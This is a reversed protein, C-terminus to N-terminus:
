DFLSAQRPTKPKEQAISTLLAGCNIGGWRDALPASGIRGHLAGDRCAGGWYYVPKSQSLAQEATFMSGGKERPEIVCLLQSLAAITRNRTMARHTQWPDTPLFESVLLAQGRKLSARLFTPPDYPHLGEPLVVITSGDEQIASQHAIQDIGRAGGSIVPIGEAAFCKSTAGALRAAEQTPRRTGVIGAGATELLAENGLLFLLPPAQDGLAQTLGEPYGPGGSVVWQMGQEQAVQLLWAAHKRQEDGCRSLPEVACAEGTALIPILEPVPKGMFSALPLSQRAALRLATHVAKRGAGPVLSLAM